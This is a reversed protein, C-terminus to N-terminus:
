RRPCATSVSSGWRSPTMQRRSKTISRYTHLLWCPDAIAERKRASRFVSSVTLKAIDAEFGNMGYAPADSIEQSSYATTFRKMLEALFGFPMRRGASDEAVVMAVVDNSKVYHILLNEAAYTLKSDNPPIKSLITQTATSTCSLTPDAGTRSRLSDSLASARLLQVINCVKLMLTVRIALTM